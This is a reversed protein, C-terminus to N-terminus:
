DGQIGSDVVVLNHPSSIVYAPLDYKYGQSDYVEAWSNRSFRIEAAELICRGLEADPLKDIPLVSKLADWVEAQGGYAPQTDWFVTRQRNLEAEDMPTPSNWKRFQPLGPTASSTTTRETKSNDMMPADSPNRRSRCCNGMKTNNKNQTQTNFSFM